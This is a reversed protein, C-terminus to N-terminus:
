QRREVFQGGNQAALQKLFYTGVEETDVAITHIVVGTDRNWERALDIHDVDQPLAGLAADGIILAADAEALM